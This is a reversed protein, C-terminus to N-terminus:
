KSFNEIINLIQEAIVKRDLKNRWFNAINISNYQNRDWKISDQILTALIADKKFSSAISGSFGQMTLYRLPELPTGAISCGCCLAEAASIGFSEWRSPMFFIKSILFYDKIKNHDIQGTIQIRQKINESENKILNKIINEGSGIIIVRFDERYKLFNLLVKIMMKTNKPAKDEWRGVCVVINEKTKLGSEIIDPTVPNPVCYIKKILDERDWRTLFYSLNSVADPSEIIVGDSLEIQKIMKEYLIKLPFRKAQRWIDKIFYNSFIPVNLRYPIVPYGIRGASDSKIIIKKGSLKMIEVLSTYRISLWSYMIIVDSDSREWFKTNYLEKKNSIQVIPFLASYNDLDPKDLTNFNVDQNMDLLGLIIQGPDKFEYFPKYGDFFISIKM